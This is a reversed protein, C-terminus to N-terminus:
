QVCSEWFKYIDGGMSLYILEFMYIIYYLFKLTIRPVNEIDWFSSKNFKGYDEM